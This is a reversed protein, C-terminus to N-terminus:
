IKGQSLGLRKYPPTKGQGTISAHDVFVEGHKVIRSREETNGQRGMAGIMCGHCEDKCRM